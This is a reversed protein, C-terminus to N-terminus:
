IKNSGDIRDIQEGIAKVEGDLMMRGSFSYWDGAENKKLGYHAAKPGPIVYVYYIDGLRGVRVDYPKGTNFYDM